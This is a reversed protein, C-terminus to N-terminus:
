WFPIKKKFLGERTHTPSERAMRTTNPDDLYDDEQGADESQDLRLREEKMEQDMLLNEKNFLLLERAKIDEPFKEYTRTELCSAQCQAIADIFRGIMNFKAWHIHTPDDDFFDANAEHARLLDSLHIETAPICAGKSNRLALRYKSHARMAQLLQDFSQLLKYQRNEKRKFIRKTENYDLAAHNIGAVISRLGSYNNMNRLRSALEVLQFLVRARMKPKDHCLILSAVWEAIHNSVNNYQTIPDTEADKVSPDMVRRLWHRSEIQLFFTSELRSIEQALSTPDTNMFQNSLNVLIKLKKSPPHEISDSLGIQTPSTEMVLIRASLPLSHKRERALSKQTVVPAISKSPPVLSHSSAGPRATEKLSNSDDSEDKPGDVKMAWAVESDKLTSLTEMFPIFESGYHLLYTKGMVSKILASLASATNPVAFDNPYLQIWHDLLACIKMQAYCAFMPDSTQGELARMRKQMALLVSRPAAFRRYTLLFHSIFTPDDDSVAVFLLKDLLEDLTMWSPPRSERSAISQSPQKQVEEYNDTGEGPLVSRPSERNRDGMAASSINGDWDQGRESLLDSMSRTRIPSIPTRPTRLPDDLQPPLRPSRIRPPPLLPSHTTTSSSGTPTASSTRSIDWPAPTTLIAPSAPNRYGERAGNLKQAFVAKFIWEFATRIKDKGFTNTTTVEILGVDYQELIASVRKPDVHRELDSKCAFVITPLKLSAMSQLVEVVNTFTSEQSADYCVVLGDIAPAGEPLIGRQGDGAIDPPIDVELVRLLRDTAQNYSIRGVRYIYRFRGGEAGPPSTSSNAESLGYSKLGKRIITSKGAEAAGVVVLTVDSQHPSPPIQTNVSILSRQKTLRHQGLSSTREPVIPPPAKGVTPSSSVTTLRSPLSLEEAQPHRRWPAKGKRMVNIMDESREVDSDDLLSSEYEDGTNTSISTGRSRSPGAWRQFNDPERRSMSSGSSARPAPDHNGSLGQGYTENSRPKATTSMMNGRTSCTTPDLPPKYNVFSDVSISKRLSSPPALPLPSSTSLLEPGNTMPTMNLESSLSSDATM